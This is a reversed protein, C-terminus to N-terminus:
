GFVYIAMVAFYIRWNTSNGSDVVLLDAEKLWSCVLMKSAIKLLLVRSITGKLNSRRAYFLEKIM